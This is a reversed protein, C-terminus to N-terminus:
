ACEMEGGQTRAVNRGGEQKEDKEGGYRTGEEDDGRRRATFTLTAHKESNAGQLRERESLFFSDEEEGRKKTASNGKM